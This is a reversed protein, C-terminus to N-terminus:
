SLQMPLVICTYDQQAKIMGPKEPDILGFSIKEDDINKLVDILYNPNFGISFEGGGYETEIEERVEGVDPTNKSIVMRNKQLDIKISQSEQSTFISARRAASLFQQTNVWLQEKAKKPIVQEYNPFEGEILRSTIVVSDIKFQLQNDKLSLFVEGEGGLNRNLEQITKNPIILNKTQGCPKALEKEVMALRRGDTAVLRLTKDTFSFLIGNLVYRAEDRSMAFSTLKIMRLLLNQPIAITSASQFEPIHPFDDKPLGMLKFFTKGSEIQVAFNKKAQIRVPQDSVMERVIEGFRKAPVTIVGTEQTEAPISCTVAIDLDTATLKLSGTQAELLINGLIPLTNKSSVAGNVVQIGKMLEEKGVSINM